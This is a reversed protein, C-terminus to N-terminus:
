RCTSLHDVCDRAPSGHVVVDCRGSSRTDAGPRQSHRTEIGDPEAKGSEGEDGSSAGHKTDDGAGLALGSGDLRDMVAHPELCTATTYSLDHDLVELSAVCPSRLPHHTIRRCHHVHRTHSPDDGNQMREREPKGRLGDDHQAVDTPRIPPEGTAFIMFPGRGVELIRPTQSALFRRPVDRRSILMSRPRHCPQPSVRIDRALSVSLRNAPTATRAVSRSAGARILSGHERARRATPARALAPAGDRGRDRETAAAPRPPGLGAFDHDM